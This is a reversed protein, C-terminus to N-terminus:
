NDKKPIDLAQIKNEVNKLVGEISDKVRSRLAGKFLFHDVLIILGLTFIIDKHKEVYGKVNDLMKKNEKKITTPKEITQPKEMTRQIPLEGYHFMTQLPAMAQAYQNRLMTEQQQRSIDSTTCNGLISEMNKDDGGGLCKPPAYNFEAYGGM